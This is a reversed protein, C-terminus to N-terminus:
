ARGCTRRAPSRLCRHLGADPVEARHARATRVLAADRPQALRADLSSSIARTMDGIPRSMPARVGSSVATDIQASIM